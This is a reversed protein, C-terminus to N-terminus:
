KYSGDPAGGVLNPAPVLNQYFLDKLFAENAM